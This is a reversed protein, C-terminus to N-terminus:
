SIAQHSRSRTTLPATKELTDAPSVSRPIDDAHTHKWLKDKLSPFIELAKDRLIQTAIRLAHDERLEAHAVIV